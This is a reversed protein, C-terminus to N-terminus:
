VATREAERDAEIQELWKKPPIPPALGEVFDLPTKVQNDILREIAQSFSEAPKRQRRLRAYTAESLAVQRTMWAVYQLM